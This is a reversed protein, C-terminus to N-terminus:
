VQTIQSPSIVPGSPEASKAIAKTQSEILPRGKLSTQSHEDCDHWDFPPRKKSGPSTGDDGELNCPPPM